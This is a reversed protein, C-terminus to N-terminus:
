PTEAQKALVAEFTTRGAATSEVTITGGHAHAIERAIFLGLGSSSRGSPSLDADGARVMPEFIRALADPPIQTGDNSVVLRVERADGRLTAVVRGDRVGHQIANVFLNTVLQRLAVPDFAGSADGEVALEIRGGAFASEADTVADRCVMAADTPLRRIPMASGLQLRTYGTLNDIMGAMHRVARKVSGSLEAGQEATASPPAM